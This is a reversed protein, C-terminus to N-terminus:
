QRGEPHTAQFKDIKVKIVEVLADRDLLRVAQDLLLIVDATEEYLAAERDKNFVYTKIIVKTLESMEEVLKLQSKQHASWPSDSTLTNVDSLDIKKTIAKLSM